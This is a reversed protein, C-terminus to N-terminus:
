ANAYPDWDAKKRNIAQFDLGPIRIEAPMDPEAFTLALADALDPSFGLRKKILDKPEILIQGGKFTYTPAILERALEPMKPLAGGHKVWEAMGWWMEARRNLYRNDLAKAHFPIGAPSFGSSRLVDLAGKAWGGTDDFFEREQAWKLKAAMVRNAIDVSPKDKQANHRMVAPPFAMLGQRPFLVTRDDGFRAVDVGLRKQAWSYADDTYTREMADAVEDPGLLSNISSPPFQGLLSYMVWPNDRGYERIQEKAWELNIRPSRKPDDPDGTVRVVRWLHPNKAAHYLAGDLSSPNGSQMVRGFRVGEESLAQEAAKLVAPPVDGSEDIQALVFGGHLGSLTRGLAELEATKPFSRASMFWTEPHHTAFIRTATWTFAGSLYKSRAMWKAYEAWLNDRLNQGTISVAAGKPHDGRDGQTGLFWLGCWAQVASKGPGVCAQMSIRLRALEQNAFAELVEVQWPQPEVQFNERVFAVIDARWRRITRAAELLKQNV